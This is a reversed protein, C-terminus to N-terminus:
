PAATGPHTFALRRATGARRYGIREYIANSTPNALDTFLTCGKGQGLLFLSLEAVLSTAHGRGRLDPPTYVPGVSSWGEVTRGHLAFSVAQGDSAEWLWARGGAVAGQAAQPAPPPDHPTAEAHFAAFWSQLLPAHEPGALTLRGPSRPVDSVATLAFVGLAQVQHWAAGTQASYAEAFAPALAEPGVVGPAPALHRAFHRGLAEAASTSMLSLQPPWPPTQVAAGLVEGAEHVTLLHVVPGWRTPNEQCGRAIALPLQNAVPQAVLLAEATALFASPEFHARIEM